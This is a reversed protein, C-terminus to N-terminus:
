RVASCDDCLRRAKVVKKSESAGAFSDFIEVVPETDCVFALNVRLEFGCEVLEAFGLVVAVRAAFAGNRQNVRIESVLALAGGDDFGGLDNAAGIEPQEALVQCVLVAM